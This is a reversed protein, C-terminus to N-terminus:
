MRLQGATLMAMWFLAGAEEAVRVGEEGCVVSLTPKSPTKNTRLREILMKIAEKHRDIQWYSSSDADSTSSIFRRDAELSDRRPCTRRTLMSSRVACCLSLCSLAVMLGDVLESMDNRQM